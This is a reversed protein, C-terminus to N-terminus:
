SLVTVFRSSSSSSSSGNCGHGADTHRSVIYHNTDPGGEGLALGRCRPARHAVSGQTHQARRGEPIGSQIPRKQWAVKLLGRKGHSCAEKATHVPRKQKYMPRTQCARM